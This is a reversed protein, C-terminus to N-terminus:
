EFSNDCRLRNLLLGHINRVVQPFLSLGGKWQKLLPPCHYMPKVGGSVLRRVLRGELSGTPNVVLDFVPREVDFRLRSDERRPPVGTPLVVSSGDLRLCSPTPWLRQLGLVLRTM